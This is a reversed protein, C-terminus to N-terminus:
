SCWLDVLNDGGGGPIWKGRRVRTSRPVLCRVSRILDLNVVLRDDLRIGGFPLRRKAEVPTTAFRLM